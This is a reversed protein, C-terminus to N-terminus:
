EKAKRKKLPGGSTQNKWRARMAAGIRARAEPSMTRRAKKTERTAEKILTEVSRDPSQEGIFRELSVIQGSLAHTRQESAKHDERLKILMRTMQSALTTFKM